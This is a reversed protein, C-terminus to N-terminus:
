SAFFLRRRRSGTQEAEAFYFQSHIMIGISQPDQM